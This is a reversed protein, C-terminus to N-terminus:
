DVLAIAPDGLDRIARRWLALRANDTAALPIDGDSDAPLIWIPRDRETGRRVGAVFTALAKDFASFLDVVIVLSANGVAKVTNEGNLDLAKGGAGVVGTVNGQTHNEVFAQAARPAFPLDRWLVVAVNTTAKLRQVATTVGDASAAPISGNDWLRRLREHLREVELNGAVAAGRTRKEQWAAFALIIARPLFGYVVLAAVLFPWYGGYFEPRSIQSFGGSSMGALRFYQTAAVLSGDPVGAPFLWSWPAAIGAFITHVVGPSLDLTTAWAFAVDTFTVLALTAALGGLNFALGFIQTLRLLSWSEAVAFRRGVARRESLREHIVRRLATYILSRPTTGSRPNLVGGPWAQTLLAVYTVLQAGVFIGLFHFVNVPRTGDYHLLATASAGGLAAGIVALTWATGRVVSDLTRGIGGRAAAGDESQQLSTESIWFKLLETPSPGHKARSTRSKLNATVARDRAERREVNVLADRELALELDLLEGLTLTQHSMSRPYCQPM